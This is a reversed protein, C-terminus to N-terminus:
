SQDESKKAKKRIAEGLDYWLLNVEVQRKRDLANESLHNYYLRVGHYLYKLEDLTFAEWRNEM